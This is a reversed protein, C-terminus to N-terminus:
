DEGLENGSVKNTSFIIEDLDPTIPEIPKPLLSTARPIVKRHYHKQFTHAHRWGALGAIVDFSVNKEFASGAAASRTSGSTARGVGAMKLELLWREIM